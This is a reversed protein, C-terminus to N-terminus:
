SKDVNLYIKSNWEISSEIKRFSHKGFMGRIQKELSDPSYDLRFLINHM